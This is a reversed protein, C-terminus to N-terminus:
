KSRKNSNLMDLYNNQIDMLRIKAERQLTMLQKSMVELEKQKLFERYKIKIELRFKEIENLVERFSEGSDDDDVLLETLYAILKDYNKFVKKSVLPNALKKDVIMINKVASGNIKFVKSKSAMMFGKIDDLKENDTLKGNNSKENNVSYM